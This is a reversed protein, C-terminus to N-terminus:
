KKSRPARHKRMRETANLNHALELHMPRCYKRQPRGRPPKTELFFRGCPSWGCQCLKDRFERTTDLLLLVGLQVLASISEFNEHLLIQVGGPVKRVERRVPVMASYGERQLIEAAVADPNTITLQLERHVHSRFRKADSDFREDLTYVSVNDAGTQEVQLRAGNAYAITAEIIQREGIPNELTNRLVILKKQKLEM